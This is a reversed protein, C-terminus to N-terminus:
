KQVGHIEFDYIRAATDGGQTAKLVTLKVYRADTVSIGHRTEGKSNGTINVAPSWSKGDKSVEIKFDSTNLSAGEGGTEAHKIVFEKIRSMTGLDVMLWHPGEGVACWKSNDTVKGDVAFKPAEGEGVFSSASTEKGVAINKALAIEDSTVQIYTGQTNVHEGASNKVTLSVEYFGEEKYVVTPNKDTSSSPTGGPFSWIREEAVESSLDTFTVTGGPAIVKTDSTFKAEPKPYEPWDFSVKATQGQEYRKNVAIVEITTKNEKSDRKMQQVYYANNPTAGLFQKKGSPLVRYVEYHQIDGNEKDWTLRADTYIGEVFATEEVVLKNVAALEQKAAKNYVSLEGINISYDRVESTSSFHLSLSTIRKGAYEALSVNKTTWDGSQATGADVFVTKNPADAFTLGVQINSGQAPTSYTLALETDSAALLDTKYLKIETANDANLNGALKLSSGGYYATTFDLQAKLATGKSETLWRWTPLIDQLSRNNWPKDTMSKGQVSFFNGNGTNFHTTFPLDNIASNAVVYNSIGKWEGDTKTNAPTGNPGVWFTNEKALYEEHTSSSSFTWDPAYLGLSVRASNGTGDPFLGDWAAKTHYGKAQVDIGAYLDFPNIGIEKAKDASPQMTKWWFNLFMNDAVQKSNNKMFMQNRDTLANQWKIKGEDTMSDYWIVQKNAQKQKMYEIAKQMQVSDAPTGGETEQNIFWGDFGYYDAVELLKDIVPFSGDEKQHMFEKVWDYQGGYVAPPFFVTGLVPVGNKHGSDIVDASPTVIIGEGASGGWSILKDVYQWYGFTFAKFDNSGQSPTSSTHPNMISIAMVKPDTSANPNVKQGAFRDALPISGKNFKADKDQTPSWNLLDQPYWYSSHPQKADATAAFGVISAALVGTAALVKFKTPIKM